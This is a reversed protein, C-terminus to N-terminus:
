EIRLSSEVKGIQCSDLMFTIRGPELGSTFSFSPSAELEDSALV